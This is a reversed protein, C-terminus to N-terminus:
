DYVVIPEVGKWLKMRQEFNVFATQKYLSDNHLDSEDVIEKKLHKLIGYKEILPKFGKRGEDWLGNYFIMGLEYASLQARAISAYQSRGKSDLASTDVFKFIHYLTRFYIGLEHQWRSYFGRYLEEYYTSIPIGAPRPSGKLSSEFEAFLRRAAERGEAVVSRVSNRLEPLPEIVEYEYRMEGVVENFRHLLQFFTGEFDQHLRGAREEEIQVRQLEVAESVSRVSAAMSKGIAEMATAARAAEAISKKTDSSQEAAADVTQRLKKAQYSFVALQLIFVILQGVGVAVLWSNTARTERETDAKEKRDLRSQEAQERSEPIPRLEVVVPSDATGRRDVVVPVRSTQSEPEVSHAPRYGVALAVAVSLLCISGNVPKVLQMKM